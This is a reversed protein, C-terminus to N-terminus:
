LEGMLAERRARLVREVEAADADPKLGWAALRARASPEARMAACAADHTAAFAAGSAVVGQANLYTAPAPPSPRHVIREGFIDTLEGGAARLLAEPACTDWSSSKFNM